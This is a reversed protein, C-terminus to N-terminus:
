PRGVAALYWVSSSLVVAVLAVLTLGGAAPLLWAPAGRRHLTLVKTVFAGYLLCGALSHLVVRTEYTQFGLSWLCHFAVPLSLLLALAGSTKHVVAVAPGAPGSGIRGYMRAATTAQVLALLGAALGLWVKMAFMSSFGLTTIAQGTPTHERGYVGLAVSVVAGVAIAVAAVGAAGPSVIPQRETTM